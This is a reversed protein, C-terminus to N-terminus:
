LTKKDKIEVSAPILYNDLVQQITFDLALADHLQFASSLYVHDPITQLMKVVQPGNQRTIAPVGIYMGEEMPWCDRGKEAILAASSSVTQWIRFTSFSHIDSHSLYLNAVSRDFIDIVDKGWVDQPHHMQEGLARQMAPVLWSRKGALAGVYTFRYDKVRDFDPEGMVEADWGMPLVHGPVKKGLQEAMWPTHGFVADMHQINKFGANLWNRHYSIMNEWDEDLAESFVRTFMAKRGEPPRPAWVGWMVVFNREDSAISDMRALLEPEQICELWDHKAAMKEWLHMADDYAPGQRFTIIYHLGTKPHIM